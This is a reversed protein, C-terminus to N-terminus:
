ADQTVAYFRRTRSGFFYWCHFAFWAPPLIWFPSAGGMGWWEKLACSPLWFCNPIGRLQSLEWADFAFLGVLAIGLAVTLLARGVRSGRFAAVSSVLVSLSIAAVAPAVFTDWPNIFDANARADPIFALMGFFVILSVSSYVWTLVYV